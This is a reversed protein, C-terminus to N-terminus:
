KSATGSCLKMLNDAHREKAQALVLRLISFEINIKVIEMRSCQVDYVGEPLPPEFDSNAKTRKQNRRKQANLAAHQKKSFAAMAEMHRLRKGVLENVM